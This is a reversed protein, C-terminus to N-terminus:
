FAREEIQDQFKEKLYAYRVLEPAIQQHRYLQIEGEFPFILWVMPRYGEEEEMSGLVLLCERDLWEAEEISASPGLFLLRERMGDRKYFIIESDPNLLLRGEEILALKQSYIDVVGEGEPHRIQHAALPHRANIPNKEPFSVDEMPLTGAVQFDSVQFSPLAEKWFGMWRPQAQLGLELRTAVDVEPETAAGGSSAGEESASSCAIFVSLLVFFSYFNTKM